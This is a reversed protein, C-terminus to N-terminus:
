KVCILYDTLLSNDVVTDCSNGSELFKIVVFSVGEM